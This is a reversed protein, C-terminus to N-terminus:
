HRGHEVMTALVAAIDSVVRQWADDELGGHREVSAVWAPFSAAASRTGRARIWAPHFRLAHKEEVYDLIDLELHHPDLRVTVSMACGCTANHLPRALAARWLTDLMAVATGATM